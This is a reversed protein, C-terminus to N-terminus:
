KGSLLKSIFERDDYGGFAGFRVVVMDQSPIIYLRQNGAGAAMYIEPMSPSIKLGLSEGALSPREGGSPGTGKANLWFTLGYAPNVKSGIVLEDLLKSAIIQKGKWKGRDRLMQGFKVWERATLVVGQPLLPQGGSKRWMFVDM